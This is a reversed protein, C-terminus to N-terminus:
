TRLRRPFRPPLRQGAPGRAGELRPAAARPPQRGGLRLGLRGHGHAGREDLHLGPGTACPLAPSPEPRGPGPPRPCASRCSQPPGRGAEYGGPCWVQPERAWRGGGGGPPVRPGSARESSSVQPRAGPCARPSAPARTRPPSQPSSPSHGSGPLPLNAIGARPLGRAGARGITLPAQGLPAAGGVTKPWVPRLRPLLLPGPGLLPTGLLGWAEAEITKLAQLRSAPLSM